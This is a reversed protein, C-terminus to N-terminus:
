WTAAFFERALALSDRSKDQALVERPSQLITTLIAAISDQAKPPLDPYAESIINKSTARPSNIWVEGKDLVVRHSCKPCFVFTDADNEYSIHKEIIDAFDQLNM